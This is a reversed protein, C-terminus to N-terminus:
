ILPAMLLAPPLTLISELVNDPLVAWCWPPAMRVTLPEIVIMLLVIEPFVALTPPPPAISVKPPVPVSEVVSILVVSTPLKPPPIRAVFGTVRTFEITAPFRFTASVAFSSMLPVKAPDVLLRIPSEPVAPPTVLPVFPFMTPLAPLPVIVNLVTSLVVSASLPPGVNVCAITAPPGATSAPSGADSGTSVLSRSPSPLM